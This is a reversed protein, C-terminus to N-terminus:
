RRLGHELLPQYRGRLSLPGPWSRLEGVAPSLTSPWGRLTRVRSGPRKRATKDDSTHPVVVRLAPSPASIAATSPNATGAPSGSAAGGRLGGQSGASAAGSTAGNPASSSHSLSASPATSAAAVEAAAGPRARLSLIVYIGLCATLLVQMVHLAFLLSTRLAPKATPGRAFAPTQSSAAFLPIPHTVPLGNDGDPGAPLARLDCRTTSLSAEEEEGLRDTSGSGGLDGDVMVTAPPTVLPVDIVLRRTDELIVPEIPAPVPRIATAGSFLTSPNLPRATFAWVFDRISTFRDQKEKALARRLASEVYEPVDPLLERVSRPTGSVIESGLRLTDLQSDFPLRGALLRFALVALSWQDARTDVHASVGTWAEPALYEPTGILMGDSGRNVHREELYKALGFDIVKVRLSEEFGGITPALIFINRPKIDRHVIGVQHVAHLASGIQYVIDQAQRLSLCRRERLVEDLDHGSLLEMVLFLSGDESIGQDFIEVINPHFIQRVLRGEDAFRRGAAARMESDVRLLKVACAAHRQLDWARYVTGMAGRGLLADLRYRACLQSGLLPDNEEPVIELTNMM